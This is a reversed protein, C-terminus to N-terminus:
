APSILNLGTGQAGVLTVGGVPSRQGKCQPQFRAGSLPCVEAPAGRFVPTFTLPCVDFASRPDYELQAEDRLGAKDCAVLVQRAQQTMKEGPSLDVLRRAMGSALGFCRLKFLVTMASRLSLAAHVPQLECHTFYCALEAARRPDAEAVEKRKLETRLGVVYERCARMLEVVEGMEAEDRAVLLTCVLLCQQFGRLAETFKGQTVLAGAERVRQRVAPLSYATRPRTEDEREADAAWGRALAVARAPAGPLAPSVAHSAACLDLFMQRYPAFNAVACQRHLLQMATAVDGAAAHEAPARCRQGWRQAASVGPAPPVFAAAAEDATVGFAGAGGGAAGGLDLGGLGLDLDDDDGWAGGELAADFANGGRPPSAGAAAGPGAAADGAGDGDEEGGAWPAEGEGAEVVVGGDLAGAGPVQDFMGRKGGVQPWDGADRRVPAPPQLLAAGPAPALASADIGAAALEERLVAAEDGLGHTAAALYALALQGADRLVRVRERVDGLFLANHFRAMPDGRLEAIKRMKDLKARDGTLVHLFSLRAHDKTKALASEAAGLRGLRLAEAGLKRWLAQEDLEQAPALAEDINGSGVALEFRRRPDTVMHLAVEPFGKGQLYSVVADGVLAGSRIMALVHGHEKRSLHLKFLYEAPNVEVHHVKGERDLAVISSGAVSAVYVPHELTRIVGSDGNPLCYKLHNLTSYLLVGSEDFAASKVRITEHVTVSSRLRRDAVVVAHKSLFAVLSMDPSWVVYKVGTAPLEGVVAKQQTDFLLMRDEGRLLVTGAGAPFMHDVGVNPVAMKKTVENMLNKVVVTGSARDLVAIRNRAVFVASAGPGRRAEVSAEGKAGADRPLVYLEYSGGEQASWTLVANEAPNYHLHRPAANLPSGSARRLALLPASRRSALDYLRVYRDKVYFLKSGHLAFAPRERELKFVILGSDHGAALLSISPHAAMIWFRDHERRFTQVGARKSMDWVRVTRDESNSVILDHKPDFMVCSVNSAHGRLSDVEWAKTDNMRWLKVQRDDAGSVLLPLTPHFQVWNVGREHGELVYKCGVEGQGFLDAGMGPFAREEERQAPTPAKKRLPSIDWVRITQDLSASAVLDETPHFRACMVYHNHGTLVAV